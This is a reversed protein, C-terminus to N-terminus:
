VVTSSLVYVTRRVEEPSFAGLKMMKTQVALWKKKCDDYARGLEKSVTVWDVGGKKGKDGYIAM